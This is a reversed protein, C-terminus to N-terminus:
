FCLEIRIREIRIDPVIGVSSYLRIDGRELLSIVILLDVPIVALDFGEGFLIVLLKYLSQVLAFLIGDLLKLLKHIGM